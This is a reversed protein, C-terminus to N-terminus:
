QTVLLMAIFNAAAAAPSRLKTLQAAPATSGLLEPAGAAVPQSQLPVSDAIMSHQASRVGAQWNSGWRLWHTSAGFACRTRPMSRGVAAGGPGGGPGGSPGQGPPESCFHM